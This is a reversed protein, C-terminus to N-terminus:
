NIESLFSGVLGISGTIIVKKKEYTRKDKKIYNLAYYIDDSIISHIKLQDAINKIKKPDHSSFNKGKLIFLNKPNAKKIVKLINTYDKRIGLAMIIYFDKMNTLKIWEYLVTFGLRNHAVDVWCELNNYNPLLKPSINELRGSWYIRPLINNLSKLNINLKKVKICAMLACSLNIYQHKGVLSIKELNIQMDDHYFISNKVKWSENYQYLRSMM